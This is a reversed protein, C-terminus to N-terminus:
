VVHSQDNPEVAATKNCGEEEDVTMVIVEIQKDPASLDIKMIEPIVQKKRGKYVMYLIM